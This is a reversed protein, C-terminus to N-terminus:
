FEKPLVKTREMMEDHIPKIQDEPDDDKKDKVERPGLRSIEWKFNNGRAIALSVSPPDIRENGEKDTFHVINKLLIDDLEEVKLLMQTKKAELYKSRFEPKKYLWTKVTGFGPLDDYKECIHQLGIPNIAIRECILDAMEENYITPRGGPHAMDFGITLKM